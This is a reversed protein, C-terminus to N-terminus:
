SSRRILLAAFFGDCSHVGPITRFFENAPAVDCLAKASGPLLVGDQRLQDIEGNARILDFDNRSELCERIVSENEEPELSCTSYLLRGGPKVGRMVSSLIALQREHQRQLEEPRLRHRIEPNRAMPGTGCHASCTASGGLASTAPSLQPKRTESQLFRRKAAPRPAPMLFGSGMGPLSQSSNRDKMRFEFEVKAFLPLLHFMAVCWQAPM